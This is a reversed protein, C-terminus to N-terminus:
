QPTARQDAPLAVTARGATEDDGTVVNIRWEGPVGKLSKAGLERFELGSGVVLDAVTGTTAVQGPEAFGEVRSAIHVAIGGIDAEFQEIEGVHVGARARIGLSDGVETIALAARVGRAPGDFTALLGDGTEKILRGGHRALERESLRNFRELLSRWRRDGLEAATATSAALDVFLVTALTRQPQVSVPRGTLFEEAEDVIPDHDGAFILHDNGPVGVCRAGAIGRALARTMAPPIILDDERYIALTPVSVSDLLPRVDLHAYMEGLTEVVGPSVGSRLMRGWGERLEPDKALSPAFADIVDPDGWRELATRWTRALRRRPIGEPYDDTETIRAYTGYLVMSSVREPHAAAIMVAAPGGESVGFLAAQESGVADLVAIADNAVNEITYAGAGRDSLGMGRKDFFIVRAFSALRDFFSRAAPLEFALEVHSVFGPIFLLDFPGEGGVRYAISTGDNRAYRVEGWQAV